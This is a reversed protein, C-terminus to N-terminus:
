KQYLFVRFMVGSMVSLPVNCHHSTKHKAAQQAITYRQVMRPISVVPFTPFLYLSLLCHLANNQVTSTRKWSSFKMVTHWKLGMETHQQDLLVM